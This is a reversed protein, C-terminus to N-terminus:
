LGELLGTLVAIVNQVFAKIEAKDYFTKCIECLFCGKGCSVLPSDCCRVKGDENITLM